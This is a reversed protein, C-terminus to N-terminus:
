FTLATRSFSIYHFTGARLVNEETSCHIFGESKLSDTTYDSAGSSTFATWAPKSVIHLLM